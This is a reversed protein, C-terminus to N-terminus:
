TVISIPASAIEPCGAAPPSRRSPRSGRRTTRARSGTPRPSRRREDRQQGREVHEPEDAEREPALAPDVRGDLRLDVLRRRDHRPRQDQERDRRDEQAHDEPQRETGPQDVLPELGDEVLRHLQEAVVLLRELQEADVARQDEGADRDRRDADRDRQRRNPTSIPGIRSGGSGSRTVARLARTGNRYRAESFLHHNSSSLWRSKMTIPPRTAANRHHNSRRTTSPM